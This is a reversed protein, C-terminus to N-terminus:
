EVRNGNSACDNTLLVKSVVPVVLIFKQGIRLENSRCFRSGDTSVILGLLLWVVLDIQSSQKAVTLIHTEVSVRNRIGLKAAFADLDMSRLLEDLGVLKQTQRICAFACELQDRNIPSHVYLLFLNGLDATVRPFVRLCGKLLKLLSTYLKPYRYANKRSRRTNQM